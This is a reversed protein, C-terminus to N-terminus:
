KSSDSPQTFTQDCSLCRFVKLEGEKDTAKITAYEAIRDSGCWICEAPVEIDPKPEAKTEPQTESSPGLIVPSAEIGEGMDRQELDKIISQLAGRLIEIDQDVTQWAPYIEEFCIRHAETLANLGADLSLKVQKMKEKKREEDLAM